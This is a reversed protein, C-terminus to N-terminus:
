KHRCENKSHSHSYSLQKQLNSATVSLSSSSPKSPSSSLQRRHHSQHCHHRHQQCSDDWFHIRTVISLICSDAEGNHAECHRCHMMVDCSFSSYDAANCNKVFKFTTCCHLMSQNSCLPAFFEVRLHIM